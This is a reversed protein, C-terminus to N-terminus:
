AFFANSADAHAAYGWFETAKGDRVHGVHINDDNLTTGDSREAHARVLVVAHEDNAVIDHIEQELTARDALAAFYRLVADKGVYDGNLAGVATAHWVIDDVFLAGVTALDGAQFAACGRHMLDVNPHEDM